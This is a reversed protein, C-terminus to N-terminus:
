RGQAERIVELMQVHLVANAAVIEGRELIKGEGRFDSVQGGAESVLLMGAALDWPKLKMEWFGDFRGCAVYALDLAASGDRRIAQARRIFRAFLELNSGTRRVDYPFGTALLAESLDSLASVRIPRGNLCAGGGREAAFLEERLPDYVVGLTLEGRYELALCVSICPYGHAFNTTGDLPDVIWRYKGGVGQGGGEEALIAHNPFRHRIEEVILAESRRDVETVLDIEGKHEVRHARGFGERLVQGARRALEVAFDM